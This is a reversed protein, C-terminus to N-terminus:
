TLAKIKWPDIWTGTFWAHGGQWIELSLLDGEPCTFNAYDHTEGLTVIEPLGGRFGICTAKDTETLGYTKGKLFVETGLTLKRPKAPAQRAGVHTEIAYDGEDVSIWVGEPGAVSRPCWFEDWWGGGYDFRLHGAPTYPHGEITITQGIQLLSPTELMVGRDGAARLAEGDRLITTGCSDCDLMRAFALGAGLPYGCNPCTDPGNM